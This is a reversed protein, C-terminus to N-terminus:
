AAVIKSVSLNRLLIKILYDLDGARYSFGVQRTTQSLADLWTESGWAFYPKLACFQEDTLSDAEAVLKDLTRAARLNRADEPFRSTLAKRWTSTRELDKAISEICDQKDNMIM